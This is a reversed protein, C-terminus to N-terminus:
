LCVNVRPEPEKSHAASKACSFSPTASAANLACFEGNEGMEFVPLQMSLAESMPVFRFELMLKRLRSATRTLGTYHRFRSRLPAKIRPQEPDLEWPHVYIMTPVGNGELIRFGKRQFALPLTRLYGGGTFPFRGGCWALTSPPFEVLQGGALRLVFPKQPAGPLGYLDHRIPFISSDHTFGTEVLIDLAWLSRKTISFSPARYFSVRKGGAQQIADLARMTDHRFAEPGLDYILQHSYSHCGLEHGAQSIRRVIGPFKEAIWGLVFFTAKVELEDFLELVKATNDEVRSPMRDWDGMSVSHRFAAVQFYDEVDVTLCHIPIHKDPM